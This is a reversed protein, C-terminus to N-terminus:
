DVCIGDVCDRYGGEPCNECVRGGSGCLAATPEALCAYGDVCCGACNHPGCRGPDLACAGNDCAEWFACLACPGGGAGCAADSPTAVCRNGSCCGRCTEPTCDAAAAFFVACVGARCVEGDLCAVCARGDTGCRRDDDDRLCRGDADCCGATCTNRDCPPGADPAPGEGSADCGLLAAVLALAPGIPRAGRPLPAAPIM